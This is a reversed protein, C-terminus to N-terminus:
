QSHFFFRGATNLSSRVQAETEQLRAKLHCSEKEANAQNCQSTELKKELLHAKHALQDREGAHIRDIPTEFCSSIRTRHIRFSPRSRLQDQVNCFDGDASILIYMGEIIRDDHSSFFPDYTVNKM